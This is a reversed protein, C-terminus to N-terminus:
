AVVIYLQDGYTVQGGRIYYGRVYFSGNSSAGTMSYQLDTSWTYSEHDGSLGPNESVGWCFGIEVSSDFGDSDIVQYLIKLFNSASVNNQIIINPHKNYSLDNQIYYEHYLGDPNQINTAVFDSWSSADAGAAGIVQSYSANNPIQLYRTTNDGDLFSL